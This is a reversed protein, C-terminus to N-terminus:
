KTNEKRETYERRTIEYLESYSPRNDVEGPQYYEDRQERSMWNFLGDQMHISARTRM